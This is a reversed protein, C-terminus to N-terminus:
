GCQEQMVTTQQPVAQTTCNRGQADCVSRTTSTTITRPVLRCGPRAKAQAAAPAAALRCSSPVTEAGVGWNIRYNAGDATWKGVAVYNNTDRDIELAYGDRMLQYERPSNHMGSGLLRKLSTASLRAVVDNRANAPRLPPAPPPTFEEPRVTLSGNYGDVVSQRATTVRWDTVPIASPALVVAWQARDGRPVAYFWARWNGDRAPFTVAATLIAGQRQIAPAQHYATSWGNVRSQVISSFWPELQDYGTRWAPAFATIVFRGDPSCASALTAGEETRFTSPAYNAAQGFAIPALSAFAGVALAAFVLRSRSM